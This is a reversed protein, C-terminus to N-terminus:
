GSTGPADRLRERPLHVYMTIGKDVTSEMDLVFSTGYVIHEPPLGVVHKFLRRYWSSHVSEANPMTEGPQIM